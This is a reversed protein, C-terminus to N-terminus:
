AGNGAGLRGIVFPHAGINAPEWTGGGSVSGMDDVIAAANARVAGIRVGQTVPWMRRIGDRRRPGDIVVMSADLGALADKADYWEGNIRAVKIDADLGAGRLLMDVREAWEGQEELAVVRHGTAALVITSLGSGCELITAEAPLNQAMMWATLLFEPTAAWPQNGYTNALATFDALDPKQIGLFVRIADDIDGDPATAPNDGEAVTINKDHGADLHRARNDPNALYDAFTGGWRKIGLHEIRIEPDVKVKGGAEIWRRCFTVDGGDNTNDNFKRKFFFPTGACNPVSSELADFVRRRIRMFGTPAYSMELLGTEEDAHLIRGVPFGGSDAKFPYAGCVVDENWGLIRVVDNPEWREDADIFLIDTCNGARFQRVLDNRGDDVNKVDDPIGLQFPIGRRVLEATTRALSWTYATVPAQFTPTAIFVGVGIVPTPTIYHNSM